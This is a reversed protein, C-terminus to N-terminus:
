CFRGGGGWGWGASLHHGPDTQALGAIPERTGAGPSGSPIQSTGAALGAGARVSVQQTVKPLRESPPLPGRLATTCKLVARLDGGRGWVRHKETVLLLITWMFSVWWSLTKAQITGAASWGRSCRRACLLHETSNFPRERKPCVCEALGM